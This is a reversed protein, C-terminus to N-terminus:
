AGRATGDIRDQLARIEAALQALRIEDGEITRADRQLRKRGAQLRLSEAACRNLLEEVCEQSQHAPNLLVATVDRDLARAAAADRGAEWNGRRARANSRSM